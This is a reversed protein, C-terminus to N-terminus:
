TRSSRGPEGDTSSTRSPVVPWEMPPDTRVVHAGVESPQTVTLRGAQDLAAAADHMAKIVDRQM